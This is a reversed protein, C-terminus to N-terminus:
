AHDSGALHTAAWLAAQTRNRAGIKQYCARLHVKVTLECIGLDKAIDKNAMGSTLKRLIADERRSLKRGAKRVRASIPQAEPSAAIESVPPLVGAALSFGARVVAVAGVLTDVSCDEPIVASVRGSMSRGLAEVLSPAALLVIRLGPAMRLLRDVDARAASLDEVHLLVLARDDLSGVDEVAAVGDVPDSSDLALCTLLMDRFLKVRSIVLISM